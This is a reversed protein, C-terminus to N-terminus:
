AEAASQQHQGEKRRLSVLHVGKRQLEELTRQGAEQDVPKTADVVLYTDFGERLSDLATERVCYELAVGVVCVAETEQARLFEALGAPLLPTPSPPHTTHPPFPFPSAVAMSHMCPLQRETCSLAAQAICPLSSQCHRGAETNVHAGRCDQMGRSEGSSQQHRTDYFGSLAESDPRQGKLFTRLIRKSELGEAGWL